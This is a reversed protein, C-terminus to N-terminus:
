LVRFAHLLRQRYQRARPFRQISQWISTQLAEQPFAKQDNQGCLLVFYCWSLLRASSISPFNGLGYSSEYHRHGIEVAGDKAWNALAPKHSRRRIQSDIYGRWGFWWSKLAQILKESVEYTQWQVQAWRLPTVIDTHIHPGGITAPLPETFVNGSWRICIYCYLFQQFRWKRHSGHRILVSDTPRDKYEGIEALYCSPVCTGAAVFLQELCLIRHPGKLM